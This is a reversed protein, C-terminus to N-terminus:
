ISTHITGRCLLSLKIYKINKLVINLKINHEIYNLNKILLLDNKTYYYGCDCKPKQALINNIRQEKQLKKLEIKTM